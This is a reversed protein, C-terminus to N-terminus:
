HNFQLFFHLFAGSGDGKGGETRVGEWEEEGRGQRSAAGSFWPTQPRPLATLEGLPSRHLAAAVFANRRMDLEFIAGPPLM